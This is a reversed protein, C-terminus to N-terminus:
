ITFFLRPGEASHTAVPSAPLCINHPNPMPTLLGVPKVSAGLLVNDVKGETAAAEAFFMGRSELISRPFLMSHIAGDGVAFHLTRRRVQLHHRPAAEEARLPDLM